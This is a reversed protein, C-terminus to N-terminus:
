VKKNKKEYKPTGKKKNVKQKDSKYNTKIQMWGMNEGKGM